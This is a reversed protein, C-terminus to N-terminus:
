GHLRRYEADVLQIDGLRATTRYKQVWDTITAFPVVDLQHRVIYQRLYSVADSLDYSRPSGGAVRDLKACFAYEWPTALVTLGRATFIAENQTLAQQTLEQRLDPPIFYTTRNNFWDQPLETMRSNRSLERAHNTAQSLLTAQQRTLTANFFDIDHTAPRTRLLITNVAGGVAIVIINAGREAIFSAAHGLATLLDEASLELPADSEQGVTRPRNPAIDELHISSSQSAACGM